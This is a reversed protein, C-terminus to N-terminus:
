APARYLAIEGFLKPQRIRVRKQKILELLALFTVILEGKSLCEKFLLSFSIKDKKELRKLIEEVKEELTIKFPEIERVIEPAKEKLVNHFATLLDFLSAEFTPQSPPIEAPPRTFLKFQAGEREALTKAREKYMEYELLQEVLESRPDEIEEEIGEEQPLLMRSKIKMLTSAMVLFEGIVDLDLLKMMNIYGLYEGAIQAIPIDWIDVEEKKILYLLLDLPGEYAELKVHYAM